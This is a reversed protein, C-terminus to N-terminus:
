QTEHGDVCLVHKGYHLIVQQLVAVVLAAEGITVLGVVVGLPFVFTDAGEQVIHLGIDKGNTLKTGCLLQQVIKKTVIQIDVTCVVPLGVIDDVVCAAVDDVM